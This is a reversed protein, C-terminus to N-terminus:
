FNAALAAAKVADFKRFRVQRFVITKLCTLM